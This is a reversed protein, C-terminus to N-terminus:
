SDRRWGAFELSVRRSDPNRGESRAALAYDAGPPPDLGPASEVPFAATHWPRMAPQIALHGHPGCYHLGM